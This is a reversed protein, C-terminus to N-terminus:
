RPWFNHCAGSAKEVLWAGRCPCMFPGAAVFIHTNMNLVRIDCKQKQPGYAGKLVTGLSGRHQTMDTLNAACRENRWSFARVTGKDVELELSPTNLMQSCSFSGSLLQSLRAGGERFEFEVHRTAHQSHGLYFAYHSLKNTQIWMGEVHYRSAVDLSWSPLERMEGAFFGTQEQRATSSDYPKHQNPHFTQRYEELAILKAEPHWRGKLYRPLPATEDLFFYEGSINDQYLPQPKRKLTQERFELTVVIPRDGIRGSFYRTVDADEAQSTSASLLAILALLQIFRNSTM